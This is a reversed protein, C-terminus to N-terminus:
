GIARPARDTGFGILRLRDTVQSAAAKVLRTVRDLEARDFKSAAGAVGISGLVLGDRNFIPASVGLVGPNFEGVTVIVGDNRIKALNARFTTWDSGLGAAAITRSHKAYISRLQYPKLYPLMIKSAAGRFLPRRQGRSFITPPSDPALEERVCLVSDSFLACLLVSHKSEDALRKIVASAANYLPDCQRIQRDLEVIRPGLIYHGNSVPALLGVDTLAKVYRYGTSRSSGLSQILAHTSWAPAAPTFLDLLGLLRVLSKSGEDDRQAPAPAQAPVRRKVRASTTRSTAETRAQRSRTSSAM